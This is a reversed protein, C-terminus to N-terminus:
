EPYALLVIGSGGQGGRRDQTTGYSGGGGGGTNAGGYGGKEGPSNSDASSSGGGSWMYPAGPPADGGPNAGPGFDQGAGGGAVWYATDPTPTGYGFWGVSSVPDQFTAPIKIGQGGSGGKDAPSLTADFGATGAGGGGGAGHNGTNPSVGHGGPNGGPGPTATGGAGPPNNIGGPTMSGHGWAGGGGSGGDQGDAITQTPSGGDGGGGGGGVATITGPSFAISTDKGSRGWRLDDVTPWTSSEGGLGATVAFSDPGGFTVTGTLYQGAGGGGSGAGGGGGVAVYEVPETPSWTPLTAFTGPNTFTHIVKGNYYSILGGTAKSSANTPGGMQAGSIQYRVIVVGPAGSYACGGDTNYEGKGGGGGGYGSVGAGGTKQGPQDSSGNGGGGEGGEGRPLTEKGGAGGGGGYYAAVGNAITYQAGDGGPGHATPSGDTGVAAAGGGGAGTVPGGTGGDNGWGNAPSDINVGNPHGSDGDGSTGATASRGGGGCGGPTATAYPPNDSFGGGGGGGVCAVPTGWPITLTTTDGSMGSMYVGDPTPPGGGLGGKGVTIPHSTVGSPPVALQAKYKLLGAGGGGVGNNVPNADKGGGGGGGVVLYDIYDADGGPSLATITFAQPAGIPADRTFTHSRYKKGDEDDTYEAIIGGTATLGDADLNPSADALQESHYGVYKGSVYESNYSARTNFQTNKAGM